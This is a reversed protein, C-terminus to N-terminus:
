AASRCICLAFPMSFPVVRDYVYKGHLFVEGVVYPLHDCCVCAPM